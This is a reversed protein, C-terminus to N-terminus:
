GKIIQKLENFNNIVKFYNYISSDNFKRNILEDVLDLTKNFCNNINYVLIDKNIDNSRAEEIFSFFESITGTGGPLILIIDADEFMRKKLEFTDNCIVHKAKELSLLQDEYKRTTYGVIPANVKAFEDYCIGMLSVNGAGWILTNFPALYACVKHVEEKYLNDIDDRSSSSIAIKM